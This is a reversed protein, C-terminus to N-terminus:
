ASPNELWERWGEGEALQKIMEFRRRALKRIYPALIFNAALRGLPGFPLTFHIRDELRVDHRYQRFLHLHRFAAFRGHEQSDEFWGVSQGDFEAALDGIHGLHPPEFATILTRHETPLGFKWGRWIVRSNATIHGSTVGGEVGRNVLEMGLTRQVLEVRTSLAFCRELPARIIATERIPNHIFDRMQISTSHSALM